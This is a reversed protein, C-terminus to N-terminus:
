TNIKTLIKQLQNACISGANKFNFLNENRFKEYSFKKNLEGDIIQKINDLDKFDIQKSIENMVKLEWIETSEKENVEYLEFFNNKDIFNKFTIVPKEYLFIFDFIIGSLDSLLIHCKNMSKSGDADKDINVNNENCLKEVEQMVKKDRTYSQPHPRLIVEFNYELLKQVPTFKFKVLSSNDGWTPAYLVVAKQNKDTNNNIVKKVLEDYYTLGTKLLNKNKTNRIKEIKKISNIQHQGSCMICDFFDFAFPKYNFIDTPSHILHINYKVNKSKKLHFVDLQPTTMVFIKANILKLSTQAYKNNGIFFSFFNKHKYGLLYDDESSTLYTSKIGLINLKEIIPLFLNSYQEGESYFIIDNKFNLYKKRSLSSFFYHKFKFFFNKLAYFITALIGLLFSVLMGSSGPDLYAYAKINVTILFIFIFTNKMIIQQLIFM